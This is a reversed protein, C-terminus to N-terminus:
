DRHGRPSNADRFQLLVELLLLMMPVQTGIVLPLYFFMFLMTLMYVLNLPNRRDSFKTLLFVEILMMTFFGIGMLGLQGRGVFFFCMMANIFLMPISPKEIQIVYKDESCSEEVVGGTGMLQEVVDLEEPAFDETLDHTLLYDAHYAPCNHDEGAEQFCDPCIRIQQRPKKENSIISM